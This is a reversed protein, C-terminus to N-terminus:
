GSLRAVEEGWAKANWLGHKINWVVVQIQKKYWLKCERLAKKWDNWVGHGHDWNIDCNGKAEHVFWNLGAQGDSGQDPSVHIHPWDFPSKRKEIDRPQCFHALGIGSVEQLYNDVAAM